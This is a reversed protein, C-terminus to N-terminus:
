QQDKNMRNAMDKFMKAKAADGLQNYIISLNQYAKINDPNIEIVKEYEPIAEKFRRTDILYLGKNLHPLIYNSDLKIAQEAFAIAKDYQELAGYSCALNNFLDINPGQFQKEAIEYYKIANQYDEKKYYCFGIAMNADAYPKHLIDISKTFEDIARDFIRYQEEKVTAKPAMINLLTSGWNYHMRSSNPSVEVDHGHLTINSEWDMSRSFTKISYLGAIIFVTIYLITNQNFLNKLSIQKSITTVSPSDAKTIKILLLTIGLCFGLSPMFVFREAMPSGILMFINSVPALTILYFLIAFAFISRKRINIIAFIGMIFYIIISIIPLVDKISYNPIQYNSYDYALPHPIVLLWLYRLM